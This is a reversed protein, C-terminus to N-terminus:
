WKQKTQSPATMIRGQCPCDKKFMIPKGRKLIKQKTKSSTTVNGRFLSGWIHWPFILRDALFMVLMFCRLVDGLCVTCLSHAPLDKSWM